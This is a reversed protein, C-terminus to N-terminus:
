APHVAFCILHSNDFSPPLVVTGDFVKVELVDGPKITRLLRVTYEGPATIPVSLSAVVGNVVFAMWSGATASSVTMSFSCYYPRESVQFTIQGTPLMSMGSEVRRRNYQIAMGPRYTIPQLNSFDAYECYAHTFIPSPGVPGADGKDGKDGKVGQDGKDGKDGKVGPIGKDGKDGKVGPTGQDGKDGKVGPDGQDGKDGKVGQAGQDGKDGKVGPDGQDGKDGKVGPTGQDGKDGKAGPTGQDGRDGKTGQTGPDGKDGKVGQAGQAGQDGKDGKVGQPGEPGACGKPGQSGQPGV